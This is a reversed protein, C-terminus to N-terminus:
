IFDKDKEYVAILREASAIDMKIQKALNRSTDFRKEDRIRHLIEVQMYEGYLNGQYQFLHVELTLKGHDNDRTMTPRNGINMVGSLNKNEALARVAYVGSKPVLKRDCTLRLNATPFGISRGIGNGKVVVGSLTYPYGLMRGALAVNGKLLEKRIRTSNILLGDTQIKDIVFVEFGYTEGARRLYDVRGVRNKGFGHDYGVVVAQLNVRDILMDKVFQEATIRAFEQDFAIVSLYDIRLRDFLTKKEDYDTLLYPAIEPRVVELPHPRFTIILSKGDRKAAEQVVKGLIVRHGQHVGDFMGVAAVVPLSKDITSDYRKVSKM